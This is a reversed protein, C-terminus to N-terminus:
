AANPSSRTNRPDADVIGDLGRRETDWLYFCQVHLQLPKRGSVSIGEMVLAPMAIKEECADCVEGAGPGGWLRPISDHPLRGDALKQRIILRAADQEVGHLSRPGVGGIQDFSFV